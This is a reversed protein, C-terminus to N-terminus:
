KGVGGDQYAPAFVIKNKVMFEKIFPLASKGRGFHMTKRIRAVIYQFIDGFFDHRQDLIKQLPM